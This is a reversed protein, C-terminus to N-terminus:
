SPISLQGPKFTLKGKNTQVTVEVAPRGPKGTKIAEVNRVTGKFGDPTLVKMGKSFRVAGM